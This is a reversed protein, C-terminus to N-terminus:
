FNFVHVYMYMYKSVRRGNQVPLQCCKTICTCTCTPITSICTTSRYNTYENKVENVGSLKLYMYDQVDVHVHVHEHLHLVHVHVIIYLICYTLLFDGYLILTESSHHQTYNFSSATSSSYHQQTIIKCHPSKVTM